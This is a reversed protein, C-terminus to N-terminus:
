REGVVQEGGGVVVGGYYGVAGVRGGGVVGARGIVGEGRLPSGACMCNRASM